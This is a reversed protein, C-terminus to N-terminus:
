DHSPGTHYEFVLGGIAILLMVIAIVLLWIHWFAVALGV